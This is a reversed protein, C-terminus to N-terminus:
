LISKPRARNFVLDLMRQIELDVAPMQSLPVDYTKRVKINEKPIIKHVYKNTCGPYDSFVKEYKIMLNEVQEKQKSDLNNIDKVYNQIKKINDDKKDLNKILNVVSCNKTSIERKVYFSTNVPSIEEGDIIISKKGFNILCKFKMLWDVGLIMHSSLSPVVLFEHTFKKQNIECTLSLQKKVVTTKAGIAVSVTTNSVPLELVKLRSLRDYFKESVCTVGSGCDVLADIYKECVLFRIRPSIM